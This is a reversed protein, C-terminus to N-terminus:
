ITYFTPKFKYENELEVGIFTKFTFFHYSLSLLHHTSISLTIHHPHHLSINMLSPNKFGSIM